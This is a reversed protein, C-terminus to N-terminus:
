AVEEEGATGHLAAALADIAQRPYFARYHDPLYRTIKGQKVWEFVTSTSVGLKAVVQPLTYYAEAMWRNHAALADIERQLYLGMRGQGFPYRTIRGLQVFRTFTSRGMGLCAAAQSATYYGDLAQGSLEGYSTALFRKLKGLAQRYCRGAAVDTAGFVAGIQQFTQPEFGELGHYRAVVERQRPTLM